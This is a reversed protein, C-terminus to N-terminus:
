GPDAGVEVFLLDSLGDDYRAPEHVEDDLRRAEDTDEPPHTDGVDDKEDPDCQEGRGPEEATESRLEDREHTDNQSREGARPDGGM